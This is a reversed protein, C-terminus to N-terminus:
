ATQNALIEVRLGTYSAIANTVTLDVDTPTASIGSLSGGSFAQILTGDSERLNVTLDITGSSDAKAVRVRLTRTGSVPPALTALTTTFGAASPNLPSQDYSADVATLPTWLDTSAGAQDTWAGPNAQNAIPM